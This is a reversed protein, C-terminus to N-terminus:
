NAMTWSLTANPSALLDALSVIASSVPRGNLLLSVIRTGDGNREFRVTAGEDRTLVVSPFVPSAISVASNGSYLPYIGLYAWVLWGSLAGYDDNGPVGDANATYRHDILWRTHRITLDSRNAWAFLWPSLIDPENGAWYYPNWLVNFPDLQGRAMFEDLQAVFEDASSFLEMPQHGHFRYHWADGEM